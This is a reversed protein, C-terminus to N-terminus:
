GPCVYIRFYRWQWSRLASLIEGFIAILFTGATIFIRKPLLDRDEVTLSLFEGFKELDSETLQSGKKLIVDGEQVMVVPQEMEAIARNQAATTAERDIDRLFLGKKVFVSLNGALENRFQQASFSANEDGSEIFDELLLGAEPFPGDNNLHEKLKNLYLSLEPFDPALSEADLNFRLGNEIGEIVILNNSLNVM